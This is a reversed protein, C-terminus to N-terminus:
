GPLKCRGDTTCADKRGTLRLRYKAFVVYAADVIPRLVPWGTWALLWGWGVADYARRFVEVGTVLSGDAKVGHITGMVADLTTGFRRPDFDPAAIDVLRLRGQGKDMRELLRAERKCLPCDGDILITFTPSAPVCRDEVCPAGRTCRWVWGCALSFPPVGWLAGRGEDTTKVQCLSQVVLGLLM